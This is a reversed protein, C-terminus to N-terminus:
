HSRTTLSFFRYVYEKLYERRTKESGIAKPKIFSTVYKSSLANSKVSIKSKRRLKRGSKVVNNSKVNNGEFHVHSDILMNDM